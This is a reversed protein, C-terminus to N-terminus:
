SAIGSLSDKRNVSTLGEPFSGILIFGFGTAAIRHLLSMPGVKPLEVAISRVTHFGYPLEYRARPLPKM